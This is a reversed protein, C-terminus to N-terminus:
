NVEDKTLPVDFSTEFTGGGGQTGSTCFAGSSCGRAPGVVTGGSASFESIDPLLNETTKTEAFVASSIFCLVLITAIRDM